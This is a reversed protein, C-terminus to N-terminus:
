PTLRKVVPIARTRLAPVNSRAAMSQAAQAVAPMVTATARTDSQM